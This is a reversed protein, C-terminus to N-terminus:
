VTTPAAGMGEQRADPRWVRIADRWGAGSPLRLGIVGGGHLGGRREKGEEKGWFPERRQEKGKRQGEVKEGM